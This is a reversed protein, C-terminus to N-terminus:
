WWGGGGGRNVVKLISRTVDRVVVRPRGVGSVRVRERRPVSRQRMRVMGKAM